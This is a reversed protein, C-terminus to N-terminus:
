HAAAVAAARTELAAQKAELTAKAAAKRAAEARLRAQAEEAKAANELAKGAKQFRLKEKASATPALAKADEALPLVKPLSISSQLMAKTWVGFKKAEVEGFSRGVDAQVLALKSLESPAPLCAATRDATTPLVALPKAWAEEFRAIKATDVLELAKSQSLKAGLSPPPLPVLDCTGTQAGAFSAKMASELREVKDPPVSLFADLGLDIAKGLKEPKIGLILDAVKETFKPFTAATSYMPCAARPVPHSPVKVSARELDQM